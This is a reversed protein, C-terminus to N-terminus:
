LAPVSLDEPSPEVEPAPADQGIAQAASQHGILPIDKLFLTGIIILVAFIVSVQFGHAIGASMSQRAADFINGFLATVQAAIQDHAPGPPVQATAGQIAGNVVQQKLAPTSAIQLLTQPQIVTSPVQSAGPIAALKSALGSAYTNNVVTGLIAVGITSGAARLYTVAGTGVGLRSRPIANQVALTLVPLLLGLGLGIVVMDRSLDFTSIGATIQTLMLIGITVIISGLITAWQYRGIRTIIQGGVISTFVLALTLPMLALGSVTASKGQVDQIFIPLYVLVSLFAMGLILSLISDVAFIQNRFLDMPLIPEAAFRESVVFSVYLVASAALAGIVQWSNWPYIQGGWTLGLLLCTTAAAALIAGLFDIRKMAERGTFRTSRLSINRPLWIALAILAIVGFPMNVYFVWRWTTNDTIWGGTLPGVVSAIGFVGTFVGQWRARAAGPFIDGVLTFVLTQIVGAGLGQMGRFIILQTMSQSTGSLISGVLFIVVGSILFFKRGFQDSLKGVIPIMTTSTLLYATVVWTYQSYGNLDDLIHPLATSVITQDLASLLLTLLLAILVSALAWGQLRPKNLPLSENTAHAAQSM